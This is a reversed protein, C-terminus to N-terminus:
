VAGLKFDLSFFTLDGKRTYILRGGHLQMIQNVFALGIGMGGPFDVMNQAHGRRWFVDFNNDLLEKSLGPGADVVSFRCTDGVVEAILHIPADKPSYKAANTLLNLLASHVLDVDVEIHCDPVTLRVKLSRLEHLERFVAEPRAVLDQVSVRQSRLVFDSQLIRQLQLHRELMDSMGSSAIQMRRIRQRASLPINALSHSLNDLGLRIASLPTRIEHAVAAFFRAQQQRWAAEHDALQKLHLAREESTRINVLTNRAEYSISLQSLFAYGFGAFIWGIEHRANNEVLGLGILAVFIFGISFIPVLVISFFDRMNLYVARYWIGYIIVGFGIIWSVYYMSSGITRYYGLERVFPVLLNVVAVGYMLYTLRRDVLRMQYFLTVSLFLVAFFLGMTTTNAHRSLFPNDDFVYQTLLGTRGLIALVFLLTSLGMLLVVKNRAWTWTIWNLFISLIGGGILMGFLISDRQMEAYLADAKMLRFQTTVATDTYIRVFYDQTVGPQLQLPFLPRATKFYRQVLPFATGAQFYQQENSDSPFFRVDEFVANSIEFLWRGELTHTTDLRLRLWVVDGVHGLHLGKRIPEFRDQYAVSSVDQLTLKASPDRFFTLEQPGLAHYLHSNALVKQSVSPILVICLLLIRFLFRIAM